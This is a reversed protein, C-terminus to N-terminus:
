AAENYQKLVRSRMANLEDICSATKPNGMGADALSILADIADNILAEKIDRERLFEKHDVQDADFM